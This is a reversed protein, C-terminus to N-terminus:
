YTGRVFLVDGNKCVADGICNWNAREEEVKVGLTANVEQEM